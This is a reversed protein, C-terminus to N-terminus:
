KRTRVSVVVKIKEPSTSLVKVGQPVVVKPALYHVGPALGKTSVSAGVDSASLNDIVTAWGRVYVKILGPEVVCSYAGVPRKLNVKVGDVKKDWVKKRLEVHVKVHEINEKLSQPLEIAIFTRM